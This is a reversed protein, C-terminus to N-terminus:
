PPPGATTDAATTDAPPPPSPRSLATDPRASDPPTPAAPVAPPPAAPTSPSAPAPAPASAPPTAPPKRTRGFIGGIFDGITGPDKLLSEPNTIVREDVGIVGAAQRAAERLAADKVRDAAGSLDVSVNPKTVSGTIKLDIPLEGQATVLLRAVDGLKALARDALAKSLVITAHYDLAGDFGMRGDIHWRADPEVLDFGDFSLWGNEIHFDSQLTRFNVERLSPVGLVSAIEGLVSNPKMRGDVALAAGDAKLTAVAEKATLGAGEFKGNLKLRGYLFDKAPTLHSLFDNAELDQAAISFTYHPEGSVFQVRVDGGVTGTFVKAGAGTIELVGDPTISVKGAIDNLPVRPLAVNAATFHGDLHRERVAIELRVNTLPSRPVRVERATLTARLTRDQLALEGEAARLPISQILLSDARIQVAAAIDPLEPLQFTATVAPISGPAMGRQVSGGALRMLEDANLFRSTVNARLAPKELPNEVSGSLSFDSEGIRGDLRVIRATAGDLVIAGNLGEAGAGWARPKISVRELDVRGDLRIERPVHVPGTAHVDLRLNGGLNEYDNLVPWRGIIDLPLAGAIRLDVRPDALPAVSGSVRFPAGDFAAFLSDIDLRDNSFRIRGRLHDIAGPMGAFAVRSEDIVITGSAGLVSGPAASGVLRAAITARGSADLKKKEALVSEPLLSLLQAIDVDRADISIDYEPQRGIERIVGSLTASLDNLTLKGASIALTHDIPRFALTYEARLNFDGLRIPRATASDSPAAGAGRTRPGPSLSLIFAARPSELKGVIDFQDLRSGAEVGFTAAIEEIHVEMGTTDVWALVGHKVAIGSLSLSLAGSEQARAQAELERRAIAQVDPHRAPYLAIRPTDIDVKTIRVRKKLIQFIDLKVRAKPIEIRSSDEYASNGSLVADKLDIAFPLWHIGADRVTFRWGSGAEIRHSLAQVIREKPLIIAALLPLGVVILILVSAVAILLRRKPM